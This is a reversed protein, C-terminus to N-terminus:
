RVDIKWGSLLAVTRGDLSEEPCCDGNGYKTQRKSRVMTRPQNNSLLRHKRPSLFVCISTAYIPAPHKYLHKKTVPNAQAQFLHWSRSVVGLHDNQMDIRLVKLKRGSLERNSLNCATTQRNIRCKLLKALNKNATAIFTSPPINSITM